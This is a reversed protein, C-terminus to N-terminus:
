INFVSYTKPNLSVSANDLFRFSNNPILDFKATAPISGDNKLTIQQTNTKGVRTRPFKLLITREDLFEKPKEVKLTPLAGEGKM